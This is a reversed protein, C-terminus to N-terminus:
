PLDVDGPAPRKLELWSTAVPAFRERSVSRLEGRDIAAVAKALEREAERRGGRVARKVQTGDVTRYKVYFTTSGDLNERTLISGRAM